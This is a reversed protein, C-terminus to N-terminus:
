CKPRLSLVIGIIGLAVSWLGIWVAFRVVAQPHQTAARLQGWLPLAATVALPYDKQTEPTGLQARYWSSMV